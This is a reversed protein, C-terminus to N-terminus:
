WAISEEPVFRSVQLWRTEPNRYRERDQYLPVNKGRPDISVVTNGKVILTYTVPGIKEKVTRESIPFTLAVRDGAKVAGGEVYRGEWGLSRAAGNV